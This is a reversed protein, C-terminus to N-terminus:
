SGHRMTEFGAADAETDILARALENFQAEISADVFGFSSEVFCGGRSISPDAVVDIKAAAWREGYRPAIRAVDDPHLRITAPGNGGLRDIAVRALAGLFEDDAEIERRVIRQALALALQVLQRESQQIIRGRLAALEEITEGLRRLSAESRRTGAEVGAREGQAYGQAFAERELAALRAQHDPPDPAPASPPAYIAAGAAVPAAAAPSPNAVVPDGPQSPWVFAVARQAERIRARSSM